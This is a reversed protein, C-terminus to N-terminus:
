SWALPLGRQMQLPLAIHTGQHMAAFDDESQLGGGGMSTGSDDEMDMDVDQVPPPPAMVPPRPPPPPPMPPGGQQMQFPPPQFPPPASPPPPPRLTNQQPFAPPPPRSPAPVAPGIQPGSAQSLSSLGSHGRQINEAIREMTQQQVVQASAASGDWIIRNAEVERRRRTEQEELLAREEEEVTGFIDTRKQAFRRM